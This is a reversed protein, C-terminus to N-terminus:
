RQCLLGLSKEKRGSTPSDDEDEASQSAKRKQGKQAAELKYNNNNAGVTFGFEGEVLAVAEERQEKERNRIEPSVASMLVKMNATPTLPDLEGTNEGNPKTPTVTNLPTLENQSFSNVLKVQESNSGTAELQQHHLTVADMLKDIDSKPPLSCTSDESMASLTSGQSLPLEIAEQAEYFESDSEQCELDVDELRGGMMGMTPTM